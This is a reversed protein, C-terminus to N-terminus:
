ETGRKFEGRSERKRDEDTWIRDGKPPPHGFSERESKLVKFASGDDGWARDDVASGIVNGKEDYVNYGSM